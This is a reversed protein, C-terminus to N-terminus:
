SAPANARVPEGDRHRQDVQQRCQRPERRERAQEAEALEM